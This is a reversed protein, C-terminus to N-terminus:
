PGVDLVASDWRAFGPRAIHSGQRLPGVTPASVSTSLMRSPPLGVGYDAMSPASGGYHTTDRQALWMGVSHQRSWPRSSGGARSSGRSAGREGKAAAARARGAASPPPPLAAERLREREVSLRSSRLHELNQQLLNRETAEELKAFRAPTFTFAPTEVRSLVSGASASLDGLKPLDPLDGSSRGHDGSNRRHDGAGELDAGRSKAYSIIAPNPTTARLHSAAAAPAAFPPLPTPPPLLAASGDAPTSGYSSGGGGGRSRGRARDRQRQEEAEARKVHERLKANGRWAEGGPKTALYTSLRSEFGELDARSSADALRRQTRAHKDRLDLRSVPTGDPAIVHTARVVPGARAAAVPPPEPLVPRPGFPLNGKAAAHEHRNAHLLMRKYERWHDTLQMQSLLAAEDPYSRAQVRLVEIFRSFEPGVGVFLDTKALAFLTVDSASVVSATHPVDFLVGVEGFIAGPGLTAVHLMPGAATRLLVRCEGAGLCYIRSAEAGQAVIVADAHRRELALREAIPRLSREDFSALCLASRLAAVKRELLEMQWSAHAAMFDASGVRLVTASDGAVLSPAMKTHELLSGEAFCEGPQLRRLPARSTRVSTDRVLVTLTGAVLLLFSDDSANMETAIMAGKAYEEWRMANAVTAQQDEDLQLMLDAGRLLRLLQKVENFSRTAPPLAMLKALADREGARLQFGHPRVPQEPPQREFPATVGQMKRKVQNWELPLPQEHHNAM